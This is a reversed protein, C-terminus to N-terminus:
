YGSFKKDFNEPIYIDSFEIREHPELFVNDEDTVEIENMFFDFSDMQYVRLLNVGEHSIKYFSNIDLSIYGCTLLNQIKDDLLEIPIGILDTLEELRYSTGVENFYRLILLDNFQM